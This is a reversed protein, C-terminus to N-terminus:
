SLTSATGLIASQRRFNETIVPIVDTEGIWLRQIETTPEEYKLIKKAVKTIVSKHGLIPVETFM